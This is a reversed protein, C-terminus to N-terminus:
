DHREGNLLQIPHDINEAQTIKNLKLKGREAPSM